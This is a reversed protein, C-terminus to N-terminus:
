QGPCRIVRHTISFYKYHVNASQGFYSKHHGIQRKWTSGSRELNWEEKLFCDLLLKQLRAGRCSELIEKMCRVHRLMCTLYSCLIKM